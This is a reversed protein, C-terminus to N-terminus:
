TTFKNHYPKSPNKITLYLRDPDRDPDVAYVHVDQAPLMGPIHGPVRHIKFNKPYQSHFKWYRDPNNM